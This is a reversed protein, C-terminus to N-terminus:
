AAQALVSAFHAPVNAALLRQCNFGRLKGAVLKGVEQGKHGVSGLAIDVGSERGDAGNDDM